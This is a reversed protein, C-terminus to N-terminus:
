EVPLKTYEGLTQRVYLKKVLVYLVVTLPAGVILGLAGFLLWLSLVAFLFLAPPIRVMRRAVLPTIVNSELQQIAVFLGLTWLFTSTRQTAALQLAPIAGLIPGDIPIFETVGAFMGLASPVPLRILWTGLGALVGIVCM